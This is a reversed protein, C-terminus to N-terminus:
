LSFNSFAAVPLTRYFYINKFTECFQCFFVLVVLQIGQGAIKDFFSVPVPTKRHIKRYIKEKLDINNM